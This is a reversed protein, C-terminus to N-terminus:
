HCTGAGSDTFASAAVPLFDFRYAGASLALRLVGFTENNRVLSNPQINGFGYLSRGGTGVVLQVIGRDPDAEGTSTQPAFREYSHDHGVLILEAGADQLARWLDSTVPDNGHEVGSSFRAHHWM